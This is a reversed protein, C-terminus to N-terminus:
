RRKYVVIQPDSGNYGYECVLLYQEDAVVGYCRDNGPREVQNGWYVKDDQLLKVAQGNSLRYELNVYFGNLLNLDDIQLGDINLANLEGIIKQKQLALAEAGGNKVCEAAVCVGGFPRGDTEICGGCDNKRGCKACCDTGCMSVM